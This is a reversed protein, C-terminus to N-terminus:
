RFYDMRDGGFVNIPNGDVLLVLGDPEETPPPSPPPTIEIPPGSLDSLLKVFQWQCNVVQLVIAGFDPKESRDIFERDINVIGKRVISKTGNEYNCTASYTKAYSGNFRPCINGSGYCSVNNKWIINCNITASRDRTSCNATKIYQSTQNIKVNIDYTIFYITAKTGEVFNPSIKKTEPFSLSPDYIPFKNKFWNTASTIYNNITLPDFRFVEPYFYTISKIWSSSNSQVTTRFSSLRAPADISFAYDISNKWFDGYYSYFNLLPNFYNTTSFAINNTWLELNKYSINVSSLSNGIFHTSLTPTIKYSM